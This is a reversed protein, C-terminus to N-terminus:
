RQKTAAPYIPLEPVYAHDPLSVCFVVAEAVDEPKLASEILEPPLAEAPRKRLLPTDTMGPFIVTTRIGNEAEERMLSHMFGVQAYKSAQYALGAYRDPLQYVVSSIVVVRGRSERLAPLAAQVVHFLGDVNTHQVRAWSEPTTEELTRREVNIGAAYVLIDLQGFRELITAVSGRAQAPDQVDAPISDAAAGENRLRKVLESLRQESRGSAAIRAGNEALAIATARGIGSSAGYIAAVKGRLRDKM